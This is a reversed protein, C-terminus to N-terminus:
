VGDPTRRKKREWSHKEEAASPKFTFHLRNKREGILELLRLKSVVSHHPISVLQTSTLVGLRGGGQLLITLTGLVLKIL